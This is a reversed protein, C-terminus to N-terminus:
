QLNMHFSFTFGSNGKGVARGISLLRAWHKCVGTWSGGAWRAGDSSVAIPEVEAPLAASTKAMFLCVARKIQLHWSQGCM